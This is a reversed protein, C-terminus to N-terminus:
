RRSPSRFPRSAMTCWAGSTASGSPTPKPFDSCAPIPEPSAPAAAPQRCRGCRPAGQAAARLLPWLRLARMQQRRHGAAADRHRGRHDPDAHRPCIARVRAVSARATEPMWRMRRSTSSACASSACRRSTSGAWISTACRWRPASAASGPSIRSGRRDLQGLDDQGFEFVMGNAVDADKLLLSIIRDTEERSGLTARGIPVFVRLGPNKLRLRRLVPAVLKVM